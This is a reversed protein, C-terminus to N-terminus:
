HIPTHFKTIFYSNLKNVGSQNLHFNDYFDSTPNLNIELNFDTYNETSTLIKKYVQNNEYCKYQALPMNVYTVPIQKEKLLKTAKKLYELQLEIPDDWNLSLEPSCNSKTNLKLEKHV